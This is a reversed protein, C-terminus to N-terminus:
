LQLLYWIFAYCLTGVKYYILKKKNVNFNDIDLHKIRHTLIPM